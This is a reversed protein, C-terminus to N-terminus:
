RNTISLQCCDYPKGSAREFMTALKEGLPTLPLASRKVLVIDPGVLAETVPIEQLSTKFIASSVWQQPLFALADTSTLLAVIPLTTLTQTVSKPAPLGHVAFQEEFEVEVPQRLCTMIWQANILGHLSRVDALPHGRRGVVARRNFLRLNTSFLQPTGNTNETSIEALRSMVCPM